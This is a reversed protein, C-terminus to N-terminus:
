FDINITKKFLINIGVLLNRAIDFLNVSIIMLLIISIDVTLGIKVEDIPLILSFIGSNVITFFYAITILARAVGFACGYITGSLLQGIVVFFISILTFDMLITKYEFPILTSSFVLLPIYYFILYTILGYIAAKAIRPLFNNYFLKKKNEVM